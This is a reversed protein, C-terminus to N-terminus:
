RNLFALPLSALSSKLQRISIVKHRLPSGFSPKVRSFSGEIREVFRLAQVSQKAFFFNNDAKIFNTLWKFAAHDPKNAGVKVHYIITSPTLEGEACIFYYMTVMIIKDHITM